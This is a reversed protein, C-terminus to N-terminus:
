RGTMCREVRFLGLLLYPHGASKPRDRRVAQQSYAAHILGADIDLPGQAQVRHVAVSIRKLGNNEHYLVLSVLGKTRSFLRHLGTRSEAVVRM